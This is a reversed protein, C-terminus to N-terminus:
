VRSVSKPGVTTGGELIREIAANIRLTLADWDATRPDFAVPLAQERLLVLEARAPWDGSLNRVALAYIALQMEYEAVVDRPTKGPPIRGTKYDLIVWGVGSLRALCDLKGTIMRTPVPGTRASSRQPAPWPLVFEIEREFREAGALEAALPSALFDAICKGAAQRTEDDIKRPIAACVRNLLDTANDPRRFDVQELVAHVINGLQQSESQGSPAWDDDEDDLMEDNVAADGATDLALPVRCALAADFERIESVSIRRRAAYDIPIAAMTSPLPTTPAAEVAERLKELALRQRRGKGEVTVPEPCAHHVLIQPLRDAYKALISLGGETPTLRPQGTLLDFREGVLQLWPHSIKGIDKLNASLILHDAARTTAVYLLRLTEARNEDREHWRLLRMGLNERKEGFKEPLAVLPGLRGDFRASPPLDNGKRDMDAVVVLPFELGKSQHISMLRIVNSSEPHTAALPEKTEEGVSEQLRDVFDALTLLGTQDFQRALDILKRLNALKRVGLFETLLAADYGTSEVAHTLLQSLPRRDKEERLRALVKGAFALREQQEESLWAPPTGKLLQLLPVQRGTLNEGRLGQRALGLLADDSVAFFPSRLLGVLAAEDDPDDLTRCLNVLDFVEQQAFFAQGGVVYYDLGHQRLAEEYYRVDTMARFLIVIDKAVLPRLSDVGTQPNRNRVRPTPDHLLQQIRRAIWLAERRRRASASDDTSDGAHDDLDATAFLFEISPEPSLQRCSPSLAEFEGGLAGDFLANVFNLIAPQSRFNMSLPLRGGEPIENRLERFVAPEARRFRYISQKVDGVVFLKGNLLGDGCLSRVIETQIPDTDQFEDVLLLDIGAAARRRVDDNRLLDRAGLLMDDFDLWAGKRKQEDYARGAQETVRLAALGLTAATLLDQPAYEWQQRTRDIQDRLDTLAEQVEAYVEDNAWVKKGGGGQVRACERIRDLSALPDDSHVLEPLEDLITQRRIQMEDHRPVHGTFLEVVRRATPSEVLDRLLQPAVVTQWENQWVEAVDAAALDRWGDFDIRYRERTLQELLTATRSLGFELVLEISDAHRAALLKQLGDAVANRLLSGSTAEDLLGFKPDLGAEVAHSRLLTGCFSHITSIRAADLERVLALWHEIENEPCRELRQRCEARIRNRMERAARETFTIAVLKSLEHRDPGPELHSLFRRTLVFTKGCGAGASLAISVDRNHIAAAQQDTLDAARRVAAIPKENVQEQHPVDKKFNRKTAM